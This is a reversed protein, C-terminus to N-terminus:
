DAAGADHCDQAKHTQCNFGVVSNLLYLVFRTCCFVFLAQYRSGQQQIIVLLGEEVKQGPSHKYNLFCLVM